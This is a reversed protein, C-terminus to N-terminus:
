LLYKDKYIDTFRKYVKSMHKELVNVPLNRMIRKIISNKGKIERMELLSLVLILAKNQLRAIMWSELADSSAMKSKRRQAISMKKSTKSSTSRRSTSREKLAGKRLPFLDM